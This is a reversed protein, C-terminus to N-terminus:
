RKQLKNDPRDENRSRSRKQAGWKPVAGASSSTSSSATWDKWDPDDCWEQNPWPDDEAGDTPETSIEQPVTHSEGVVGEISETEVADCETSAVADVNEAVLRRALELIKDKGIGLRARERQVLAYMEDGTPNGRNGRFKVCRYGHPKVSGAMLPNARLM